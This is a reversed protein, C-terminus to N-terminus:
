LTHANEHECSAGSAWSTHATIVTLGRAESHEVPLISQLPPTVNAHTEQAQRGSSKGHHGSLISAM